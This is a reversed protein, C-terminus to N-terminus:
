ARLDKQLVALEIGAVRARAAAEPPFPVTEGTPRYGRRGYFGILERRLSIATMTMRHVGWQRQVFAEAAEILRKGTGAGQRSPVVVFMGLYAADAQRQLLVSGVPEDGALALLMVSDPAAILAGVEAADTRPGDVLDMEHTWGAVGAEGRYAANTIRVIDDVDAAVAPRFALEIAAAV